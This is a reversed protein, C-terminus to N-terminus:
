RNGCRNRFIRGMAVASPPELRSVIGKSGVSLRPVPDNHVAISPCFNLEVSADCCDETVHLDLLVILPDNHGEVDSSVRLRSRDDWCDTDGASRVDLKWELNDIAGKQLRFRVLASPRRGGQPRALPEDWM